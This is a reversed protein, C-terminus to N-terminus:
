FDLISASTFYIDYNWSQLRFVMYSEVLRNGVRKGGGRLRLAIDVRVSGM